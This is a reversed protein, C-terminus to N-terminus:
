VRAVGCAVLAVDDCAGDLQELFSVGSPPRDPQEARAHMIQTRLGVVRRVILQWEDFPLWTNISARHSRPQIRIVPSVHFGAWYSFNRRSRSCGNKSRSASMLVAGAM